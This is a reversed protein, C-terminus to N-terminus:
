SFGVSILFTQFSNPPIVLRLNQNDSNQDCLKKDIYKEQYRVIKQSDRLRTGFLILVWIACFFKIKFINLLCYSM